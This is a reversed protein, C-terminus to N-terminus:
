VISCKLRSYLAYGGGLLLTVTELGTWPEIKAAKREGGFLRRKNLRVKLSLILSSRRTMRGESYALKCITFQM